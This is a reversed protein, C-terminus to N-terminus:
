SVKIVPIRKILSDFIEQIQFVKQMMRQKRCEIKVCVYICEVRGMVFNGKIFIQSFRLFIEM